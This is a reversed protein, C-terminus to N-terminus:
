LYIPIRNKNRAFVYIGILLNATGIVFLYLIGDASYINHLMANIFANIYDALPNLKVITKLLGEDIDKIKYAIPTFFFVTQMIVSIIWQFDRYFVSIVSVYLTTGAAFITLSLLILLSFLLGTVELVGFANLLVCITYLLLDSASSLVVALPLVFLPFPLKKILNEFQIYISSSNFIIQNFYMWCIMGVSVYLFQDQFQLHLISAFVVTTTLTLMLPSVLSWLIGFVSRRYKLILLIKAFLCITNVLHPMSCNFRKLNQM